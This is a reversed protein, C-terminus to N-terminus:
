RATGSATTTAPLPEPAWQRQKTAWAIVILLVWGGEILIRSEALSQALLSVLM